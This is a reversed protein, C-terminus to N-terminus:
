KQEQLTSARTVIQAFHSPPLETVWQFNILHVGLETAACWMETYNTKNTNRLSTVHLACELRYNCAVANAEEGPVGCSMVWPERIWSYGFVNLHRMTDNSPACSAVDSYWSCFIGFCISILWTYMRLGTRSATVRARNRWYLLSQNHTYM